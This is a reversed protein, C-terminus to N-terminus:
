VVEAAVYDLVDIMIFRQGFEDYQIHVCEDIQRQTCYRLIQLIEDDELWVAGSKNLDM